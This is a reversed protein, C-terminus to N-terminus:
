GVRKLLKVQKFCKTGAPIIDYYNHKGILHTYKKKNKRRKFVRILIGQYYFLLIKTPQECEAEYIHGSVYCGYSQRFRQAEELSTFVYLGSNWKGRVFQGVKYQIIFETNSRLEEKTISELEPTVLKYYKM